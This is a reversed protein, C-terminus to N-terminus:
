DLGLRFWFRSRDGRRGAALVGAAGGRCIWAAEMPRIEERDGQALGLGVLLAGNATLCGGGAM